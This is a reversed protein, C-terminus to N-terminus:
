REHPVGSQRSKLVQSAFRESRVFTRFGHLADACGHLYLDDREGNSHRFAGRTCKVAFDLEALIDSVKIEQATEM